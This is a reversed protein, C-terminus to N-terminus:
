RPPEVGGVLAGGTLMLLLGTLLAAGTEFRGDAEMMARVRAVFGSQPRLLPVVVFVFGSAILFAGVLHM